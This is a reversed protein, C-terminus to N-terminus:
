VSQTVPIKIIDFKDEKVILKVEDKKKITGDLIKQSLLNEVETSILRRVPRAGYNSNYGESALKQSRFLM